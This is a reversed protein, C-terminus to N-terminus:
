QTLKWFKDHSRDRLNQVGTTGRTDGPAQFAGLAEKNEQNERRVLDINKPSVNSPNLMGGSGRRCANEIRTLPEFLAPNLKPMIHEISCLALEFALHVQIPFRGRISNRENASFSHVSGSFLAVRTGRISRGLSHITGRSQQGCQRLVTSWKPNARRCFGGSPETM